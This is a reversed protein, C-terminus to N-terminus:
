ISENQLSLLNPDYKKQKVYAPFIKMHWYIYKRIHNKTSAYNESIIAQMTYM